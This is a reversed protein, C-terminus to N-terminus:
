RLMDLRGGGRRRPVACHEAVFVRQDMRERQPVPEGFLETYRYRPDIAGFTHAREIGFEGLGTRSERCCQTIGNGANSGGDGAIDEAFRYAIM